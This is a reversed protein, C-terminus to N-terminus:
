VFEEVHEPDPKHLFMYGLQRLALRPNYNIRGKTGILPVNPFNGCRLIVKVDDCARFYWPIDEANLYM